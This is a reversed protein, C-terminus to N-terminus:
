NGINWPAKLHTFRKFLYRKESYKQL